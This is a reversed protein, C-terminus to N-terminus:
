YTVGDGKVDARIVDIGGINFRYPLEKIGFADSLEQIIKKKQSNKLITIM